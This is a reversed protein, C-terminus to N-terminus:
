LLRGQECEVVPGYEAAVWVRQKAGYRSVRRAGSDVIAGMRALENLRGSASQPLIGTTQTLEDQTTGHYKAGCVVLLINDRISSVKPAIRDAAARSTDSANSRPYPHPATYNM